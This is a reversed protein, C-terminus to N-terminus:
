VAYFTNIITNISKWEKGLQVEIKKITVFNIFNVWSRSRNGNIVEFVFSPGWVWHNPKNFKKSLKSPISENVAFLTACYMSKDTQRVSLQFEVSGPAEICM